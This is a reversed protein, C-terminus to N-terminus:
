LPENFSHEYPIQSAIFPTPKDFRTRLGCLPCKAEFHDRYDRVVDSDKVGFSDSPELEFVAPCYDCWIQLGTWVPFSRKKHIIKM